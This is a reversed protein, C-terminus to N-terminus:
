ATTLAKCAYRWWSQYCIVAGSQLSLPPSQVSLKKLCAGAPRRMRQARRLPGPQGALICENQLAAAVSYDDSVRAVVPRGSPSQHAGMAKAGRGLRVQRPGSLM